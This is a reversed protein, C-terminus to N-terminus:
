PLDLLGLRTIKAMLESFSLPASPISTLDVDNGDLTSALEKVHALACVQCRSTGIDRMKLGGMDFNLTLYTFGGCDDEHFWVIPLASVVQFPFIHFGPFYRRIVKNDFLGLLVGVYQSAMDPHCAVPPHHYSLNTVLPQILYPRCCPM